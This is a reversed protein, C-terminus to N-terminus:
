SVDRVDIQGNFRRDGSDGKITFLINNKNQLVIVHRLGQNLKRM